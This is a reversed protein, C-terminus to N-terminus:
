GYIICRVKRGEVNVLEPKKELCIDKKYKCRNAFRCGIQNETPSLSKGELPIMGNQPLSELFGRTYPHLPNKLVNEGMEVVEGSYMIIIDDCLLNAFEIDHTIILM